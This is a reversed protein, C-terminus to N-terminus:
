SGTPRQVPKPPNGDEAAAAYYTWCTFHHLSYIYKGMPNQIQIKAYARPSVNHYYFDLVKKTTTLSYLVDVIFLMLSVISITSRGQYKTFMIINPFGKAM